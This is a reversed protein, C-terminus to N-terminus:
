EYQAMIERIQKAADVPDPAGLIANGVTLIEPKLPVVKKLTEITFLDTVAFQEKPIVELMQKIEYMHLEGPRHSETHGHYCIIDVDMDRVQEARTRIDPVCMFDVEAKKGREHAVRVLERITFDHTFAHVTAIDAGADYAWGALVGAGDLIKVDALLTKEPYAAHVRRISDMGDAFVLPTGVEIIDIYDQVKEIMKLADDTSFADVALQLKM